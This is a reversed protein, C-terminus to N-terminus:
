HYHYWCSFVFVGFIFVLFFLMARSASIINCDILNPPMYMAVGFNHPYEFKKSRERWLCQTFDCHLELINKSNGIIIVGGKNRSTALMQHGLILLFYLFDPNKGSKIPLEETYGM